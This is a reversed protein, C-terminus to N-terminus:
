SRRARHPWGGFWDLQVVVTRTTSVVSGDIVHGAGWVSSHVPSSLAAAVSVALADSTHAPDTVAVQGADPLAKGTPVVGTDHEADSGEPLVLSHIALTVTTSVVGGVIVQGSDARTSASGTVHMTFRGSM